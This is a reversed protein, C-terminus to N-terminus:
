AIANDGVNFLIKLIKDAFTGPDVVTLMKGTLQSLKGCGNKRSDLSVNRNDGLYYFENEPVLVSHSLILNKLTEENSGAAYDESIDISTLNPYYNTLLEHINRYEMREKIYPEDTPSFTTEGSKMIYLDMYRRDTPSIMFILRDGETAVVRKIIIHPEDSESIDLTVIDGRTFSYGRRMMLCSQKDFISNEMSQGSIPTYSFLLFFLFVALLLIILIYMLVLSLIQTFTRKQAKLLLEGTNLPDAM